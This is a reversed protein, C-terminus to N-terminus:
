HNLWSSTRSHQSKNEASLFKFLLKPDVRVPIARKGFGMLANFKKLKKLLDNGTTYLNFISQFGNEVPNGSLVVLTLSESVRTFTDVPDMAHDHLDAISKASENYLEAEPHYCLYNVWTELTITM